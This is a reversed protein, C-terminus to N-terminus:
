AFWLRIGWDTLTVVVFATSAVALSLEGPPRVVWRGRVGSVFFYPVCILVAACLMAGGANAQVARVPRGRVLYSWSTTMGCFPLPHWVVRSVCM